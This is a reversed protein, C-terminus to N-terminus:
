KVEGNWGRLSIGGGALTWYKSLENLDDFPQTEQFGCSIDKLPIKALEPYEETWVKHFLASAKGGMMWNEWGTGSLSTVYDKYEQDSMLEDAVKNILPMVGTSRYLNEKKRDVIFDPLKGRMAKKLQSKPNYGGASHTLREEFPTSLIYEVLNKDLFPVRGEIGQSALIRDERYCEHEGISQILTLANEQMYKPDFLEWLYDYGINTEDAGSGTMVVKIGDEKAMQALKLTPFANILPFYLPTAMSRVVDRLHKKVFEEDIYGVKGEIGLEKSLHKACKIDDSNPDTAVTYAKSPKKGQQYALYAVTSSDIKDKGM